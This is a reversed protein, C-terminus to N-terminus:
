KEGTDFPIEIAARAGHPLAEELIFRANDAYLARLRGRLNTLGVGNGIRAGLGRGNDTVAVVLREGRRRAELRITGGEAQPELGHKVANEVVSMLLMPPLRHSRLEDPVDIAFALRPGMRMQM